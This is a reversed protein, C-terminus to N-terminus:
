CCGTGDGDPSPGEGCDFLGFHKDRTGTVRFHKSYRTDHIMAATNGCVPVPHDTEFLHHDDLEFRHPYFPITGKYYAVQGFDECRDELPLKFVRYTISYFKAMGIKEEIDANAITIPTTSMKRIDACGIDAMLRRFDEHYMAGALCEGLLVEDDMLAEPLRRDAVVDSFYLEGGPKLVRFAERFVSAKDPSLNIVCDSIVVDISEDDIGPTKLDEIYGKLFTVNPANYGYREMQRPLCARAVNLQEDTMDLGFVHGNEGVLRSALYTDRGSGCGLDLVTCGELATPVPAGCGYFRELVEPEIQKILQKLHLPITELSCCANTQLDKTSTLVQGYYDQVSEHTYELSNM